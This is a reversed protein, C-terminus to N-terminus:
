STVPSDILHIIEVLSQNKSHLHEEWSKNKQLNSKKILFVFLFFLVSKPRFTQGKDLAFRLRFTEFCEFDIEFFM